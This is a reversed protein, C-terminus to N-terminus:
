KAVPALADQAEKALVEEERLSGLAIFRREAEKGEESRGERYYIQAMKYWPLAYNPDLRSAQQFDALAGGIDNVGLRIKGRLFYAPAFRPNQQLSAAIASMAESGFRHSMRWLILGHLYPLYFNASWRKLADEVTRRAGELDGTMYLLFGLGERPAALTSDRDIARTYSDIAQQYRGLRFQILGLTSLATASPQSREVMELLDAADSLRDQRM